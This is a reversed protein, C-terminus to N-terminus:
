LGGTTLYNFGKFSMKFQCLNKKRSFFMHELIAQIYYCIQKESGHIQLNPWAEVMTKLHWVVNFSLNEGSPSKLM